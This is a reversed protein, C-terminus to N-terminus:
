NAHGSVAERVGTDPDSVLRDLDRDRGQMAVAARVRPDPDYVLRDLDKDRGQFAVAARVQWAPDRVLRDLDKDRGQDAVAARVIGVPSGTLRDLGADDEGWDIWSLPDAARRVRPDPDSALAAEIVASQGCGSVAVARRVQWAPDQWLKRADTPRGQLAVAARVQWAPDSVLKDLDQDRGQDAVAARVLDVPDSVLFDLDQDEGAEALALRDKLPQKSADPESKDGAIKALSAQAEKLADWVDVSKGAMRALNEAWALQNLNTGIGRLVRATEDDFRKQITVTKVKVPQSLALHKLYGPKTLGLKAAKQSLTDAQEQTLRISVQKTGTNKTM